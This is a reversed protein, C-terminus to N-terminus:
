RDDMNAEAIGRLHTGTRRDIASSVTFMPVFPEFPGFGRLMPPGGGNHPNLAWEGGVHKILVQGYYRAARDWTAVSPDEQLADYSPYKDLLYAELVDLSGLSYDLKSSVEKPLDHMFEDLLVDMGDM